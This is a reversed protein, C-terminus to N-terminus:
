TIDKKRMNTQILTVNEFKSLKDFIRLLYKHKTNRFFVRFINCTQM